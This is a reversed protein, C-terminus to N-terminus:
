VHQIIYNHVDQDNRLLDHTFRHVITDMSQGRCRHLLYYLCYGCTDSHLSQLQKTNYRVSYQKLFRAVGPITTPPRGYSDFYEIDSIDQPVFVCTWHRGSFAAPDTNIVYCACREPRTTPLADSLFVGRFFSKTFPDKSLVTSLTLSDM